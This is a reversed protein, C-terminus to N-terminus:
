ARDEKGRFGLLLWCVLGATFIVSTEILTDFGRYDALVSTVVNPTETERLSREIYDTSIRSNPLSRADGFDPLGASARFLSAGLAAVVALELWWLPGSQPSEAKRATRFLAVLLLVSSVGAGAVAETFSVDPAGVVGWLAALFYSLTGFLLAAGVLDPLAATGAACALMLLLLAINLWPSLAAEV